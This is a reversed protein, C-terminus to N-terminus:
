KYVLINWLYLLTVATVSQSQERHGSPLLEDARATLYLRCKQALTKKIVWPWLSRTFVTHGECECHLSEEPWSCCWCNSAHDLRFYRLLYRRLMKYPIWKYESTEELKVMHCGRRSAQCVDMFNQVCSWWVSIELCTEQLRSRLGVPPRVNHIEYHNQGKYCVGGVAGCRFMNAILKRCSSTCFLLLSYHPIM